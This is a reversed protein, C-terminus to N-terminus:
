FLKIKSIESLNFILIGIYWDLFIYVKLALNWFMEKSTDIILSYIVEM